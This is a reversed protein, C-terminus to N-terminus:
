EVVLLLSSKLQEIGSAYKRPLVKNLQKNNFDCFTSHQRNRVGEELGSLASETRHGTRRLNLDVKNDWMTFDTQDPAGFLVM